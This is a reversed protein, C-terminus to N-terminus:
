KVRRECATRVLGDMRVSGMQEGERLVKRRVVQVQEKRSGGSLLAVLAIARPLHSLRSEHHPCVAELQGRLHHRVLIAQRAQLLQELAQHPRMQLDTVCQEEVASDEVEAEGVLVKVSM